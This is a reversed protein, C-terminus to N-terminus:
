RVARETGMRVGLLETELLAEARSSDLSVDRPRTGAAAGESVGAQVAARAEAPPLGMAGLVALGLEYRSVRDPGAVHLIGAEDGYLLEVLAEAANTVELPTRWEDTFLTPSVEGAVAELLSDSAGLGRGASNGYLLPLRVVLASSCAGLVASEGAAKTAGYPNLPAPAADETLGGSPADEAGFVMDTSVHVLRAGSTECWEAVEAPVGANLREALAPDAACEGVRSVAACLIVYAPRTSELVARPSGDRQLDTEVWGLADRPDCFSPADDPARSTGYVPPGLPDAFTAEERALLIARAAVHAGLFGSAGFVLTSTEDNM